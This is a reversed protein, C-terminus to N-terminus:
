LVTTQTSLLSNATSQTTTTSTTTSTPSTVVTPPQITGSQVAFNDVMAYWSGEVGVYKISTTTLPLSAIVQGNISASAVHAVPDYSVALQNFSSPDQDFTGSVSPGTLGNTHFVFQNVFTNGGAPFNGTFDVELWAQGNTEFNSNTASSSSFGIATKSFFGVSDASVTYGSTTPAAFPLLANPRLDVGNPPNSGNLALCGDSYFNNVSDNQLATYPEYPDSPGVAAFDWEQGGVVEKPAIWSETKNNPFEARIGNINTHVGVAKLDGNQKYRSGQAFGFSERIYTPGQGIGDFTGPAIAPPTLLTTAGGGGSGGSFLTRSEMTEFAPRASYGHGRTAISM